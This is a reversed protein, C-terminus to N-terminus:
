ASCPRADPTVTKDLAERVSVDKLTISVQKKTDLIEDPYIFKYTTQRQIEKFVKTLPADKLSLSIKQAFVGGNVKLGFTTVLFFTFKFVKVACSIRKQRAAFSMRPFIM